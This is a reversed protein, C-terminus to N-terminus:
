GGLTHTHTCVACMYGQIDTRFLAKSQMEIGMVGSDTHTTMGDRSGMVACQTSGEPSDHKM